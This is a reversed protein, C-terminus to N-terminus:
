RKPTALNTAATHLYFEPTAFAIANIAYAVQDTSIKNNLM